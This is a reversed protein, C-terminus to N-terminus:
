MAQGALEQKQAASDNGESEQEATSKKLRPSDKLEDHVEDRPEEQDPELTEVSESEPFAFRELLATSEGYQEHSDASKALALPAM